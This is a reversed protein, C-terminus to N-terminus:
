GDGNQVLYNGYWRSYRFIAMVLAVVSTLAYIFLITGLLRLLAPNWVFAQFIAIMLAFSQLLLFHVFTASVSQMISIGERVDTESLMQHFGRDGFGILMAYGGLTFGLLNPFINLAQKAIEGTEAGVFLLLGFVISFHFFPSTRLAGWGGYATWYKEFIAKLSAGKPNYESM